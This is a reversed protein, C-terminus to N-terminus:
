IDVLQTEMQPYYLCSSPSGALVTSYLCLYDIQQLRIQEHHHYSLNKKQTQFSEQVRKVM